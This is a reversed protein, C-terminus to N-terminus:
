LCTEGKPCAAGSTTTGRELANIRQKLGGQAIIDSLSVPKEAQAAKFADLAETAKGTAELASGRGILYTISHPSLALAATYDDIAKQHEKRTAYARGRMGLAFANAPKMAISRDLDVLARNTDGKAVYAGGRFAYADSMRADLLLAQDLQAIARDPENRMLFVLGRYSYASASRPNLQVARDLDTMANDVKGKLALGYGRGIYAWVDNPEAMLARDFEALAPDVKNQALLAFGVIVATSQRAQGAPATPAAGPMMSPVGPSAAAVGPPRVRKFQPPLVRDICDGAITAAAFCPATATTFEINGGKWYAIDVQMDGDRHMIRAWASVTKDPKTETHTITKPRCAGVRDFMQIDGGADPLRLMLRHGCTEGAPQMWVAVLSADGMAIVAEAHFAKVNPYTRYPSGDIEISGTNATRNQYTEIRRTGVREDASQIGREPAGLGAAIYEDSCRTRDAEAKAFLCPKVVQETISLKGNRPVAVSVKTGDDRYALLSWTEWRGRRMVLQRTATNCAGFGPKVEAGTNSEDMPVAVLVHSTCEQVNSKTWITVLSLHTGPVFTPKQIKGVNRVKGIIRGNLEISLVANAADHLARLRQGKYAVEEVASAVAGTANANPAPAAPKVTGANSPKAPRARKPAADAPQQDWPYASQALQLPQGARSVGADSRDIAPTAAVSPGAAALLMIAVWACGLVSSRMLMVTVGEVSPAADARYKSKTTAQRRDM